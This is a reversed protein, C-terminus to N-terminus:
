VDYGEVGLLGRLRGVAFNLPYWQPASCSCTADEWVSWCKVCVQPMEEGLWPQVGALRDELDHRIFDLGEVELGAKSFDITM